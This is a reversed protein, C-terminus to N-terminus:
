ADERDTWIELLEDIQSLVYRLDANRQDEDDYTLSTHNGNHFEFELYYKHQCEIDDRGMHMIRHDTSIAIPLKDKSFYMTSKNNDNLSLKISAM